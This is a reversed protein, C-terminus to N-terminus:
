HFILDIHSIILYDPAKYNRREVNYQKQTDYKVVATNLNYLTSHYLLKHIM